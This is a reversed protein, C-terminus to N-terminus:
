ATARSQLLHAGCSATGQVRALASDRVAVGPIALHASHACRSGAPAAPLTYRVRPSPGYVPQLALVAGPRQRLPLAQERGNEQAGRLSSSQGDRVVRHARLQQHFDQRRTRDMGDAHPLGASGPICRLRRRGKVGDGSM